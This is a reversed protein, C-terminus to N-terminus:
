RGISKDPTFAGQATNLGFHMIWLFWFEEKERERRVKRLTDTMPQITDKVILNM